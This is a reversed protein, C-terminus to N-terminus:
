KSQALREKLVSVLNGQEIEEWLIPLPESKIAELLQQEIRGLRRKKDDLILDRVYESPTGYDGAEIQADIYSKLPEPLSINLTSMPM